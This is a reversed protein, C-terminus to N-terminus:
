KETSKRDALLIAVAASLAMPAALLDVWQAENFGFFQVSGLFGAIGAWTSPEAARALFVRKM